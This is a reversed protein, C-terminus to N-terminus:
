LALLDCVIYIVKRMNIQGLQLDIFHDSFNADLISTLYPDKVFIALYSDQNRAVWFSLSYKNLDLDLSNMM